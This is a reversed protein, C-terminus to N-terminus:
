ESGAGAAGPLSGAGRAGAILMRGIDLEAAAAHGALDQFGRAEVYGAYPMRAGFESVTADNGYTVPGMTFTSQQLRRTRNQYRHDVRALRAERVLRGNIIMPVRRLFHRAKASMELMDSLDVTVIM